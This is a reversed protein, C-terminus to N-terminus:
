VSRTVSDNAWWGGGALEVDDRTLEDLVRGVSVGEVSGDVGGRCSRVSQLQEELRARRGVNRPAEATVRESSRDGADLLVLTPDPQSARIIARRSQM